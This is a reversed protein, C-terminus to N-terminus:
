LLFNHNNSEDYHIFSKGFYKRLTLATHRAIIGPTESPILPALSFIHHFARGATEGSRALGASKNKYANRGFNGSTLVFGMMKRGWQSNRETLGAYRSACPLGLFDNLMAVTADFAKIYGIMSLRERLSEADVADQYDNLLVAVDVVQRLGVGEVLLHNFMHKFVTIIDEVQSLM